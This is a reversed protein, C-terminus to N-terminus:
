TDVPNTSFYIIIIIILDLLAFIVWFFILFNIFKMNQLAPHERKLASHLSRRFRLHGKHLGLSLYNLLNCKQEFFILNKGITFKKGNKTM